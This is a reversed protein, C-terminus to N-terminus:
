DSNQLIMNGAADERSAIPLASPSRWKVVFQRARIDHPSDGPHGWWRIDVVDTFTAKHANYDNMQTFM